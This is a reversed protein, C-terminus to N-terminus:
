EALIRLHRAKSVAETRNQADLKNMIHHVHSKVTGISIVLANAIDRNSGGAALQELVEFERDTLLDAPHQPSDDQSVIELLAAAYNQVRSDAAAARLLSQLPPGAELFPRVFRQPAALQLAAITAQLAQEPKNLAQCARARLIEAGIQTKVRGHQQAATILQTLAALAAEHEHLALRVQALTLAEEDQQYPTPPTEQYTQAWAAAVATDGVQLQVRIEAADIRSNIMASHFGGAHRRAQAINSEAAAFDGYALQLDALHLHTLWLVDPIDSQEALQLGERLLAEAETLQNRHFYATALPLMVASLPGIKTEYAALIPACRKQVATLEGAMLDIQGLYSHADLTLYDHAIAEAQALARDYARRAPMIDGVLFHLFAATNAIRVQDLAEVNDQRKRAKAIWERGAPVDGHYAALTAQYNYAIAQLGKRSRDPNEAADLAETALQVLERSGAIDGTLYLARSFYLALRPHERLTEPPFREQWRVITTIEGRATLQEWAHDTILKAAYTFDAAHFAHHVAQVMRNRGAYWEAAKRQQQRYRSPEHLQLHQRLFQSFLHHYRYVPATDSLPVLFLGAVGIQNLRIPAAPDTTLAQCSQPDLQNLVCTDLLFQRIPPPQHQLVEQSFYDFIHRRSTSYSALQQALAAEDSQQRGIMILTLAAAWGETLEVLQRLLPASPLWGLAKELCRAAEDHTFRLDAMRIETVNGQARLRALQIPPDARTGIALKMNQPLHTSILNLADHIAPETLLHYDDLIMVLPSAATLAANLIQDSVDQLRLQEASAPATQLAGTAHQFAALLHTKFRAPDNDHEDLAYWIVCTDQKKLRHAWDILFSSKGFGAPASVLLIQASQDADLQRLLRERAVFTSSIPPLQIKTRLFAPM